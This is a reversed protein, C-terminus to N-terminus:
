TWFSTRKNVMMAPQVLAKVFWARWNTSPAEDYEFEYALEIISRYIVKHLAHVLRRSFNTLMM